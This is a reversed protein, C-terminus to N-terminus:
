IFLGVLTIVTPLLAYKLLMSAKIKQQIFFRKLITAGIPNPANAILTLGGGAIAGKVLALKFEDSTNTLLSGLYTLAANDTVATLLSTGLYVQVTNMSKLISSLWWTQQSGILILGTLFLGVFSAERLMLREQHISYVQTFVIFIFLIGIFLTLYHSNIIVLILFVIHTFVIGINVKKLSLNLSYDLKYFEPKCILLGMLTNIIVIIIIKLAFTSIMFNIDWHWTNAVMLIPPAAFPTMAGGISINVFLISLIVYKLKESQISPFLTEKLIIASVTMAAPETIFSGLLPLLTLTLFYISIAPRFTLKKVSYIITNEIFILIPKTGAITMIAIVFLPETFDLTYLYNILQNKGEIILMLICLFISWLPFILEIETFLHILRKYKPFQNEFEKLYSAFFTHLLALVFILLYLYSTYKM